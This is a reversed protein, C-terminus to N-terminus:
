PKQASKGSRLPPVQGPRRRPMVEGDSSSVEIGTLAAENLDRLHATRLEDILRQSAEENRQRWLTERIQGAADEPSRHSAAVSGRRWVVAFGAGEAVPQPVLEGDKVRAAARALEPDIKVGAENSNGDSDVFGLNGARLNTAKDGSHERALKTFSDVTLTAKAADLVSVAEERKACLIRWLNYRTPSDYKSKNEAYYKRVDEMSIGSVPGVQSRVVRMTANALARRIKAAVAPDTDLHEKEAGSAVLAEPVVVDLLFKRRIESPTSGMTLLQVRPLKGIRDELEAVTIEKAGVRAAVASRRALAGAGSPDTPDPAGASSGLTGLFLAIGATLATFISRVSM